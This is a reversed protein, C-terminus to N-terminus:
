EFGFGFPDVPGSDSDSSGRENALRAVLTMESYFSALSSRRTLPVSVAIRATEFSCRYSRPADKSWTLSKITVLM